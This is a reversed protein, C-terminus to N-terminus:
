TTSRPPRPSRTTLYLGPFVLAAGVLHYLELQEGLLLFALVSNYLPVLYMILSTPGAGLVRQVQAYALYAGLSAVCALFLVTAITTSDLRPWGSTLGEWLTFPLLVIVGGLTIAAFRTMLGLKSPRYRLLVSYLAWGVMAALIWLDGASFDLGLLAASKGRSIVVIVGALSIAVGFGQLPSLSERWFIRAMSVILIPSAAYILGINIATTTSAGIYVFAGCVGMGLAGLVLLDFWESRLLARSHWLTMAVAPLLITGTITWRWFALAIPPISDAVARATLMNSAFLAPAILLLLVALRRERQWRRGPGEAKDIEKPTM